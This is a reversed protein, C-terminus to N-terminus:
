RMLALTRDRYYGWLPDTPRLVLGAAALAAEKGATSASFWAQGQRQLMLERDDIRRSLVMTRYLHVLDDITLTRHYRALVEHHGNEHVTPGWAHRVFQKWGLRDGAQELYRSLADRAM